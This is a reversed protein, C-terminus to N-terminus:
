YQITTDDSIQSPLSVCRRLVATAEIYSYLTASWNQKASLASPERVREAKLEM